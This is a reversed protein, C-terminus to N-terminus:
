CVGLAWGTAVLLPLTYTCDVTIGLLVLCDSGRPCEWFHTHIM